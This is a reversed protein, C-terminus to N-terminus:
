TPRSTAGTTGSISSAAAEPLTMADRMAKVDIEELELDDLKLVTLNEM